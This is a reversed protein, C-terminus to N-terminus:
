APTHRHLAIDLQGDGLQEPAAARLEAFSLMVLMVAGINRINAFELLSVAGLASILAAFAIGSYIVPVLNRLILLRREVAANRLVLDFVRSRVAPQVQFVHM